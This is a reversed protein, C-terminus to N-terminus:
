SPYSEQYVLLVTDDRLGELDMSAVKENLEGGSKDAATLAYLRKEEGWTSHLYVIPYCFNLICGGFEYRPYVTLLREWKDFTIGKTKM